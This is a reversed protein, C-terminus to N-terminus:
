QQAGTSEIALNDGTARVAPAVIDCGSARHTGWTIPDGGVRGFDNVSFDQYGDWSRQLENHIQCPCIKFFRRPRMM